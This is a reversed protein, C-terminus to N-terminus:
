WKESGKVDDGGFDKSATDEKGHLYDVGDFSEGNGGTHAKCGDQKNVEEQRWGEYERKSTLALVKLNMTEGANWM